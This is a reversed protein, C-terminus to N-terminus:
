GSLLRATNRARDQYRCSSPTTLSSSGTDGIALHHMDQGGAGFFLKYPRKESPVDPMVGYETCRELARGYSRYAISCALIDLLLYIILYWKWAVLLLKMRGNDHSGYHFTGHFM